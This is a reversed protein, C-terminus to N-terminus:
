QDLSALLSNLSLINGVRGKSVSLSADIQRWPLAERGLRYRPLQLLAEATQVGTLPEPDFHIMLRLDETLSQVEEM